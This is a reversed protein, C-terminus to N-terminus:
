INFFRNFFRRLPSHIEEVSFSTMPNSPVFIIGLNGIGNRYDAYEVTRTNGNLDKVEMWIFTYYMSLISLVEEDSNVYENNIKMITDGSKLGMAQAPSGPFVDLIKVGSTVPAFAPKGEKEHRLGYLILLEHAVPAFVAAVWKLASYHTSLVALLILVASFAMLRFASDRTRAQPIQTLSIDGYGLAAVAPVIMYNANGDAVSKIIPWWDPMAISTTGHLPATTASVTLIVFPIPWFRQLSFGGVIRGDDRTTFIPMRSKYGDLWILLSEMLHLIGVLAMLGSVDVKPYGVALSFLSILGGAYSFCIYRPHILMLILALMWVYEIGSGEVSIGLLVMIFSGIFGSLFSFLIADVVQDKLPYLTNGFLEIQLQTSRRYQLYMFIFVLWFFPQFIGALVGNLVMLFLKIFM